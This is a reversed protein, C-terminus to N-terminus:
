GSYLRPLYYLVHSQPPLLASSFLSSDFNMSFLVFQCLNPLGKASVARCPFVTGDPFLGGYQRIFPQFRRTPFATMFPLLHVSLFCCESPFQTRNETRRCKCWFRIVKTGTAVGLGVVTTGPSTRVRLFAGYCWREAEGWLSHPWENM